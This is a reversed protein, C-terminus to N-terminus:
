SKERCKTARTLTELNSYIFGTSQMPRGNMVLALLREIREIEEKDRSDIRTSEVRNLRGSCGVRNM